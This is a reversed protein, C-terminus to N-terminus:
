IFQSQPYTQQYNEKSIHTEGTLAFHDLLYYHRAYVHLSGVHWIVDGAPVGVEAAVQELVHAQWARDNKFGMIADNSRMRVLAHVAGSRIVYQVSDTCMFDSRGNKNYDQWMSPRTYIMQARRSEPNARLEQVVHDFQQGNEQSYICWGYNSNIFGDPDAVASWIAPVAGPIDRVNLSQSKYWAEERAVYDWNVLGFLAPQSARFTAGLLEITTNGVLSTMSGERNVRTFDQDRLASALQTRIQDMTQVSFQSM